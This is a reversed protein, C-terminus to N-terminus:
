TSTIKIKYSWFNTSKELLKILHENNKLM